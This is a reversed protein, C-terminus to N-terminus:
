AYEYVNTIVHKVPKEGSHLITRIRETTEITLIPEQCHSCILAPINEVLILQGHITFVKDISGNTYKTNGCNNCIYESM